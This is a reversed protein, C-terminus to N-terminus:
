EAKELCVTGGEVIGVPIPEEFSYVRVKSDNVFNYVYVERKGSDILWYERVGMREYRIRRTLSDYGSNEAPVVDVVWGPVGQMPDAGEESDECDSGREHGLLAEQIAQLTEYRPNRTEGSLVKNVTSFPVGSLAAIQMNTLNLERKRDRLMAIDIM